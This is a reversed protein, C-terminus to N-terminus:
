VTLRGGDARRLFAHEADFVPRVALSDIQIRALELGAAHHIVVVRIANPKPQLNKGLIPVAKRLSVLPTPLLPPSMRECSQSRPVGLAHAVSGWAKCPAGCPSPHQVM